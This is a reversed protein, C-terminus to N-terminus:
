VTLEHEEKIQKGRELVVIIVWIIFATIIGDGFDTLLQFGEKPFFSRLMGNFIFYDILRLVDASIFLWSLIKLRRLLDTRFPDQLSSKRFLKRLQYLEAIALSFFALKLILAYVGQPSSPKVEVDYTNTVPKYQYINGASSIRPEERYEKGLVKYHFINFGIDTGGMELVFTILVGITVVIIFYYLISTTIRLFGLAFNSNM